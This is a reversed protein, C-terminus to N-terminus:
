QFSIDDFLDIEVDADESERTHPFSRCTWHKKLRANYRSKGLAQTLQRAIELQDEEGTPLCGIKSLHANIWNRGKGIVRSLMTTNLAIGMGIWVIGCSDARRAPDETDSSQIFDRIEYLTDLFRHAIPPDKVRCSLSVACHKQIEALRLRESPTLYPFASDM